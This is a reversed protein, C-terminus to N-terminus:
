SRRIRRPRVLSFLRATRSTLFFDTRSLKISGICRTWSCYPAGGRSAISRALTTKGTGPPGWFIMSHLASSEIAQRLPKGPGLLHEQGVFEELRRPRLRNALPEWGAPQLEEFSSQVQRGGVPPDRDFTAVKM